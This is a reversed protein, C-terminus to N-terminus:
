YRRCSKSIWRHYESIQDLSDNKIDAQFLTHFFLQIVSERPSHDSSLKWETYYQEDTGIHLDSLVSEFFHKEDSEKSDDTDIKFLEACEWFEGSGGVWERDGHLNHCVSQRTTLLHLHSQSFIPLLASHPFGCFRRDSGECGTATHTSINASQTQFILHDGLIWRGYRGVCEVSLM